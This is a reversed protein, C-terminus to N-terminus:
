RTSNREFKLKEQLIKRIRHMRTAVCNESVGIMEAAESHTLGEIEVVVLIWQDEPDLIQLIAQLDIMLDLDSANELLPLIDSIPLTVEDISLTPRARPSRLHDIYLNKATRFLWSRFRSGEQIKKLNVLARVYTDQCLDEAVQPNRTLILCLRFLSEKTISILTAVAREEGGQARRFINELSEAESEPECLKASQNKM